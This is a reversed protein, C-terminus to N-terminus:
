REWDPMTLLAAYIQIGDWLNGLRLNENAAHQNDDYNAIPVAVIPAELERAFLSMPVSGGLMPVKVAPASVARAVADAVAVSSPASMDTRYAPYGEEWVARLVKAHRTLTAASPEDSSVFWGRSRAFRTFARKIEEPRQDPVLRFDISARARTPIANVAAAGVTGSEFGRLNMAPAAVALPLRASLETRGIALERRLRAEVPPERRLAQWESASLNRVRASFGPIRVHGSDDRAEALLSALMIAPNPAWNGFHGDHLGRSPGYATLEVSSFGRAGFVVQPQGTPYVPGDGLIMLDSRLLQRNQHLIAPLHASGREEEGELFVKVNCTPHVGAADLADIAALLAVITGKDDGASRAFIRLDDSSGPPARALAPADASAGSRLVPQFPPSSWEPQTAPQGDFHAYFLITRAVGPSALEAFVSPPTGAGASLRRTSFGRKAFMAVLADANREIDSVKSADNPLALLATFEDIIGREHALRFEHVQSMLPDAPGAGAPAALLCLGLAALSRM